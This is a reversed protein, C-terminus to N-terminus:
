ISPVGAPHPPLPMSSRGQSRQKADPFATARKPSWNPSGLRTGDYPKFDPGISHLSLADIRLRRHASFPAGQFWQALDARRRPMASPRGQNWAKGGVGASMSRSM